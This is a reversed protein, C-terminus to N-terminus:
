AAREAGGRPARSATLVAFTTTLRESMAERKNASLLQLVQMALGCLQLAETRRRQAHLEVGCNWSKVLFWLIDDDLMENPALRSQKVSAMILGLTQLIDQVQEKEMVM